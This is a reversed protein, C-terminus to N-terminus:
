GPNVCVPASMPKCHRSVELYDFQADVSIHPADVSLHRYAGTCLFEFLSANMTRAGVAFSGAWLSLNGCSFDTYCLGNATSNIMHISVQDRVELQSGNCLFLATGEGEFGLRGSGEGSNNM